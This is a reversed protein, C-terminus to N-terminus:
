SLMATLTGCVCVCVCVCVCGRPNREFISNDERAEHSQVQKGEALFTM